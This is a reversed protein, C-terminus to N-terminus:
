KTKPTALPGSKTVEHGKSVKLTVMYPVKPQPITVNGSDPMAGQWLPRGTAKELLFLKAGEVSNGTSLGAEVYITGDDNGEVMLLVSHGFTFTIACTILLLLMKINM